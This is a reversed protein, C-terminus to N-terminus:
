GVEFVWSLIESQLRLNLLIDGKEIKFQYNLIARDKCKWVFAGKKEICLGWHFLCLEFCKEFSKGSDILGSIGQLFSFYANMPFAQYARRFRHSCSGHGFLHGSMM